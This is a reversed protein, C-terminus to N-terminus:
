LMLSQFHGDSYGENARHEELCDEQAPSGLSGYVM